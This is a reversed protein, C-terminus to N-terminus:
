NIRKLVTLGNNNTLRMELRWSQSNAQLFEEVAPWLGTTVEQITFNSQRAQEEANWGNRITEGYIADVTTDHLIIFKRTLPAFRALERKLQGYIHWTDIFSLDTPELEVELDNGLLFRYDIDLQQSLQRLGDFSPTPNLDIGIMTKRQGGEPRSWDLGQLIAWSAVGSRVGAETVHSCQRAYAALVSCHESIDSPESCVARFKDALVLQPKSASEGTINDMWLQSVCEHLVVDRERAEDTRFRVHYHDDLSCVDISLGAAQRDWIFNSGMSPYLDLRTGETTPYIPTDLQKLVLAIYVDDEIDEKPVPHKLLQEVVDRSLTIGSGSVFLCNKAPYNYSAGAYVGRSAQGIGNHKLFGMYRPWNWIACANTRM